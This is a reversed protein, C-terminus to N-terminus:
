EKQLSRRKNKWRKLNQESSDDSPDYKSTDIKGSGIVQFIELKSFRESVPDVNIGGCEPCRISQLEELVHDKWWTLIVFHLGCEPCKCGIQTHGKRFDAKEGVKQDRLAKVLMTKEDPQNNKQHIPVEWDLEEDGSIPRAKFDKLIRELRDIEAQNKSNQEARAKLQADRNAIERELTAMTLTLMRNLQSLTHNSTALSKSRAADPRLKSLERHQAAVFSM